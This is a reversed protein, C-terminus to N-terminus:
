STDCTDCASLLSRGLCVLRLRSFDLVSERLLIYGERTWGLLLLTELEIGVIGQWLPDLFHLIPHCIDWMSPSIFRGTRLIYSVVDVADDLKRGSFSQCGGFELIHLLTVPGLVLVEVIADLNVHGHIKLCDKLLDLYVPM